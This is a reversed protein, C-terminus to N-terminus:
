YDSRFIRVNDLWASDAGASTVGSKAYVWRFTHEGQTLPFGIQFWDIEGSFEGRPSGDLYFTLKDFGERSSVKIYFTLRNYGTTDLTLELSSSQVGSLEGSRAAFDGEYVTDPDIRWPASGGHVWPLASFDGTEFDDEFKPYDTAVRPQLWSQSLQYLDYMNILSDIYWDVTSCLQGQECDSTMWFRGLMAFEAMGVPVQWSLVPYGGMRWVEETGNIAEGFFDWKTFSSQNRMQADTYPNAIGNIPGGGDSPHLFYCNQIFYSLLNEGAFGGIAASGSGSAAGTAYCNAIMGGNSGVFGGLQQSNSGGTVNVQAYCNFFEQAGNLGALGGLMLANSGGTVTGSVYCQSVSCQILVGALGGGYMSQDGGTISVGELGLNKVQALSDVYGFLGLFDSDAGSTDIRLNRIVHGNGDFEGSFTPGQFDEADSIDPAILATRFVNPDLDIDEILIFHKGYDTTTHALQLLDVKNAIQYPESDTGEGGTYAGTFTSLVSCLVLGRIIENRIQM